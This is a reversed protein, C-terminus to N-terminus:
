QYVQSRHAIIVVVVVQGEEDVRYVVRWDGLRYRYHKDFPGRLRRINPHYYPNEKLREFCRNLRRVLSEEAREYFREAEKTLVVDYM